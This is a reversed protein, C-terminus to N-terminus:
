PTARRKAEEDMVREAEELLIADKVPASFRSGQHPVPGRPVTARWGLGRRSYSVIEGANFQAFRAIQRDLSATEEESLVGPRPTRNALARKRGYGSPGNETQVTIDGGSEMGNMVTDWDKPFPGNPLRLYTSGTISAGRRELADCDAFYLLKVLKAEGFDPDESSQQCLYVVAETLKEPTEPARSRGEM